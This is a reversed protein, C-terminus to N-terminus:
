CTEIHRFVCKGARNLISLESVAAVSQLEPQYFMLQSLLDASLYIFM